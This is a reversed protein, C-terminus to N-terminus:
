LTGALYDMIIKKADCWGYCIVALYGADNLRKVMNAQEISVKGQTVMYYSPRKLELFLGAYPAVPKALMLDPMGKVLGQRANLAGQIPNRVLGNPIAFLILDPYQLKFWEVLAEQEQAEIRRPKARM